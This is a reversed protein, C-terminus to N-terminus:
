PAFTPNNKQSFNSFLGRLIFPMKQTKKVSFATNSRILYPMKLRSCGIVILSYGSVVESNPYFLKGLLFGDFLDM